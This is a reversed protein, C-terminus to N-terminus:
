MRLCLSYTCLSCRVTFGADCHLKRDSPTKCFVGDPTQMNLPLGGELQVELVLYRLDVNM